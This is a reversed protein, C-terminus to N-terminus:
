SDSCSIGGPVQASASASGSSATLEVPDGCDTGIGFQVVITDQAQSGPSIGSLQCTAGSATPQCGAGTAGEDCLEQSSNNSQLSAGAPLTLSVTLEGTAASGTNTVTWMIENDNGVFCQGASATASLQAAATTSPIPAPSGAPSPTPASTHPPTTSSTAAPHTSAPKGAPKGLPPQPAALAQQQAPRPPTEHRAPTLVVAVVAAIVFVAAAAIWQLRRSAHQPQGAAHQPRARIASMGPAGATGTQGAAVGALRAQGAEAQTAATEDTAAHEASLYSAAAAGLFAPAVIARLAVDIDTLEACVAHCEDCHDLHETVIASDPSSVAAEIFDALRRAVPQCEPRASDAIYVRLCAQRLAERARRQLTPLEDPPAGLIPGLEALNEQEIKTHWLVAIWSEPLSRFARVVMSTQLGAVSPGIVPEGPGPLEGPDAPVRTRQERLQENSVQRLAALLYPRFADAPGSGRLTVELIRRFTEAVVGDAGDPAVLCGAM